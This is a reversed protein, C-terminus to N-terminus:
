RREEEDEEDVRDTRNVILRLGALSSVFRPSLTFVFHVDYSLDITCSLSLYLTVVLKDRGPFILLTPPAPWYSAIAPQDIMNARADQKM